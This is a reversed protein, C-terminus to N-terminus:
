QINELIENFFFQDSILTKKKMNQDSSRNWLICIREKAVM